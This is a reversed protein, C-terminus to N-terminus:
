VHARGIEDLVTYPTGILYGVLSSLGALGLAALFRCLSPAGGYRGSELLRRAPWRAALLPAVFFGMNYKTSTALGGALGALVYWRLAPQRLLRADFYLALLLLAVSPVDSVGYHSDRVHLFSVALLLAAILGTRRGFLITGIGALLAVSATGLLASYALVSAGAEHLAHTIALGIGRTGGTVLATKGELTM